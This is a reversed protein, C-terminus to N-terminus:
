GAIVYTHGWRDGLRQRYDSTMMALLALVYFYEVLLPISRRVLAGTTPINGAADVVRIGVLRKGPTRGSRRQLLVFYALHFVTLGLILTAIFVADTTSGAILILIIFIMLYIWGDVLHAVYRRGSVRTLDPPFAPRATSDV